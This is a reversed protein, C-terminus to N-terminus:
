TEIEPRPTLNAGIAGALADFDSRALHGYTDVTTTIKEHGLQRQLVPLPIGAQIAWSAFTHRLDHVRPHKGPGREVIKLRAGSVDKTRETTDGAFAAVAPVWVYRHFGAAKVRGGNTQEFLLSSSPRGTLLPKLADFVASPAAVTRLSRASKPPGLVRQGGKDVKWAKHVRIAAAEVDVDGITLATVEGFRIGTGAMTLVMPRYREDVHGLLTAFEDRTLYCMERSTSRPLRLGRCPNGEILGAEEAATLSSSLLAHRNRISKGALGRGGDQVPRALWNVWAAVGDRDLASLPRDGFHPELDRGVYASYTALTGQTVGTLHEVHHRVQGVVTADRTKGAAEDLAARAAAPGVADLLGIWKRAAREDDFTVVYQRKEHRYRVRYVTAGGSDRTEISAM